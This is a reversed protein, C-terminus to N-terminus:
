GAVQTASFVQPEVGLERITLLPQFALGHSAFTEDAGEMRDVISIVVDVIGGVEQVVKAARLASEGTTTVDEIIAVRDGDRLTGEILRGLGHGKVEKRVLFGRLPKTRIPASLALVAGVIPDAGMTLGGIADVQQNRLASCIATAVTHSGEASLTIKRCDLYYHSERGSALKFAGVKLADRRVLQILEARTKANM